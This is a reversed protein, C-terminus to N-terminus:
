AADTSGFLDIVPESPLGAARRLADGHEALEALNEVFLDLAAESPGEIPEM